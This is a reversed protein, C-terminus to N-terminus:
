KTKQEYADLLMQLVESISKKSELVKLLMIRKHEDERIRTIIQKM